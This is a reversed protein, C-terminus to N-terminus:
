KIDNLIKYIEESMRAMLENTTGPTPTKSMFILIYNAKPTYFIGADHSYDEFEGTKNHSYINKPLYKPLKTLRTQQNLLKLLYNSDNDSIQTSKAIDEFLVGMNAVNILLDKQFTFDVDLRNKIFYEIINWGYKDVLALAYENNSETIIKELAREITLPPSGISDSFQIDGAKEKELIFLTVIVKYLSAMYYKRQPDVVVTENTTLNKFYVSINGQVKKTYSRIEEEIRMQKPAEANSTTKSLVSKKTQITNLVTQLEQNQSILQKKESEQKHLSIYDTYILVLSLTVFNLLLFIFIITLYRM